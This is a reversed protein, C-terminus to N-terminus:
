SLYLSYLSWLWSASFSMVLELKIYFHISKNAADLTDFADLLCRQGLLRHMFRTRLPFKVAVGPVVFM